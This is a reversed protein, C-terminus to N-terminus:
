RKDARKKYKSRVIYLLTLISVLVSLGFSLKHILTGSFWVVVNGSKPVSVEILGNDDKKLSIPEKDLTAKYGKYYLLPLSLKVTDITNVTFKFGSNERRINEITCTTDLFEITDSGRQKLYNVSPVSESYYEDYGLHFSDFDFNVSKVTYGGAIDKYHTASAKITLFILFILIGYVGVINILRLNKTIIYLYIAGSCAFLFCCILLFRWPFQLISLLSFPFIDWPFLRSISILLVIGIISSIDAFRLLKDKCQPIFVRCFVPLILIIGIDSLRRTADPILGGFFGYFVWQTIMSKETLSNFVPRTKYWLDSDLMQEFMPFLYFASLLLALIGAYVLYLLRKPEKIFCKCYIILFIVLILGVMFSSLLHSLILGTFGFAIIYWKQKYDRFLIEYAGWFVVPIFVFAILEGIAARFTMDTFRYLAFTYLLAFLGAAFYNNKVKKFCYFSVLSCLIFNFLLMLKYANIIGLANILLAFPLLMIDSYFLNVPYGYGGASDANIYFPYVGDDWAKQIAAFRKLHFLSDHGLILDDAPYFNYISLVSLGLTILCFIVFYIKSNIKVEM